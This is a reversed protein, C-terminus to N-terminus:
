HVCTWSQSTWMCCGKIQLDFM